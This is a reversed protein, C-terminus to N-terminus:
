VSGVDEVGRTVRVESVSRLVNRVRRDVRGDGIRVLCVVRSSYLGGWVLRLCMCLLCRICESSSLSCSVDSVGVVFVCCVSGSSECVSSSMMSRVVVAVVVLVVVDDVCLDDVWDSGIVCNKVLDVEFVSSCLSSVSVCMGLYLIVLEMGACEIDDYWMVKMEAYARVLPETLRRRRTRLSM